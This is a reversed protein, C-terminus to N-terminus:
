QKLLQVYEHAIDAYTHRENFNAIKRTIENYRATDALEHVGRAMDEISLPDVLVGYQGFREAYGSHKTLLFPKGCQLADIIYNPTVESVSPLVVAYCARMKELLENYPVTGEELEIDPNEKQAIDFARRFATHNKLAIERTCFLYNKKAPTEATLKEEIANEVIHTRARDFGYERTWIDRLWESTFVIRVSALAWQVIRFSIREKVNWRDRHAYFEPLPVLDKTREVYSEWVFDGGARCFMPKGTFRAVISAPIAVSFTDLSIVADMGRVNWFLKLTYLLHRIGTPFKKLGGYLVVRVSHGQAELEEKLRKAYHSPGGIEPPYIGTAILIRM